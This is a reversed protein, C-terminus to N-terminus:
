SVLLQAMSIQTEFQRAKRLLLERESGEPLEKAKTRLEEAAKLLREDLSTIQKTRNRREGM